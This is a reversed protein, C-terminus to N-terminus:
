GGSGNARTFRVMGNEHEVTVGGELQARNATGAVVEWVRAMEARSPPHPPRLSTVLNRLARDSLARPSVMLVSRPIEGARDGLNVPLEGALEQLFDDDSRAAAATRALAALLQPNFEAELLPIVELRLRNRTFGSDLNSPDDVFPLGALVSMERLEGRTVGLLPRAVREPTVPPIGALGALGTGRLLNILVTEAQDDLTHATVIWEGEGRTERLALYRADRAAEETFGTGALEAEVVTLELALESAVARAAAELVDAHRTGHNVHVARAEVWLRTALLAMASSDPGGSLALVMPAKPFDAKAGVAEILEDLRRTGAV